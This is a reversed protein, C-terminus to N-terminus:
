RAYSSVVECNVERDVGVLVDGSGLQDLEVCNVATDNQRATNGYDAEVQLLADDARSVDRGVLM